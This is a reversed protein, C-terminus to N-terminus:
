RETQAACMNVIVRVQVLGVETEKAMHILTSLCVESNQLYKRFFIAISIEGSIM